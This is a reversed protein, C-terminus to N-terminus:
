LTNQVCNKYGSPLETRIRRMVLVLLMLALLPAPQLSKGALVVLPLQPYLPSLWALALWLREGPLWAGTVAAHRLLAVMALMLWATDYDFLYPSLLLTGAVLAAIQLDRDSTLMWIRLTALGALLAILLHVCWSVALSADIGRMLGFVSALRHVPIGQELYARAQMLGSGLCDWVSVGLVLTSAMALLIVTAAATTLTRWAGHQLLWLPMLLGLQPKIALLGLSVGALGPHRQHQFLCFAALAATLLGNQGDLLNRWLGPFALLLILGGALPLSRRLSAVFLTATTIAFTAYAALYGLGGLPLLLLQYLPPYFWAPHKSMGPWALDQQAALLTLQCADAARDLVALRAAAWFAVFDGGPPNGTVQMFHMLVGIGLGLNLGLMVWLALQVRPSQLPNM